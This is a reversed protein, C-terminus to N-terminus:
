FALLPCCTTSTRYGDSNRPSRNTMVLGALAIELGDWGERDLDLASLIARTVLAMNNKPLATTREALLPKPITRIDDLNVVSHHM